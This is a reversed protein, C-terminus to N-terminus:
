RAGENATQAAQWGAVAPMIRFLLTDILGQPINDGVTAMFGNGWQAGAAKGAAYLDTFKAEISAVLSKVTREGAEAASQEMGGGFQGGAAMGSEATAGGVGGGCGWLLAASAAVVACVRWWARPPLGRSALSFLPSTM